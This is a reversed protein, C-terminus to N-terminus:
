RILKLQGDATAILLQQDDPSFALRTIEAELKAACLGKDTKAPHWICVRGDQCGSALVDGRSQFTLATLRAEHGALQLPKTGAPGKGSVDWVTVLHGGGTALFRSTRDWALHRVKGPYGRMHLAPKKKGLPLKWYTVSNEQAGAALHKGDPSWAGNLYIALGPLASIPQQAHWELVQVGGSNTTVVAQSDKRWAVSTISSAHADSAFVQEGSANWVRLHKGAATAVLLGDPSCKVHEVWPAGGQREGILEGTLARWWRVCGDEGGSIILAPFPSWAVAQVGHRHAEFVREVTGDVLNVVTLMGDALAVVARRGDPSWAFGRIHEELRLRWGNQTADRTTTETM